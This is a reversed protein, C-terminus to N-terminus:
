GIEKRDINNCWYVTNYWVFDYILQGFSKECIKDYIKKYKQKFFDNGNVENNIHKILLHRHTWFPM